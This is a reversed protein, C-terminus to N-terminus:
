MRVEESFTGFVTIVDFSVAMEGGGLDSFVFNDASLIRKDVSFAERIRRPLESVIYDSEEGPLDELECGFNSNYIQWRYRENALIIEVAQRMAPLGADMGAIQKSTWDILFTNTPLETYTLETSLEVHKPLTAM